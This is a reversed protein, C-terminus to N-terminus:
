VLILTRNRSFVLIFQVPVLHRKLIMYVFVFFYIFISHVRKLIFTMGVLIM